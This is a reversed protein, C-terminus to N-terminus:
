RPISLETKDKNSLKTVNESKQDRLPSIKTKASILSVVVNDAVVRLYAVAAMAHLSSDCFVHYEIEKINGIIGENFWRSIKIEKILPIESFFKEWKKVESSPLEQDWKLNLRWIDQLGIKARVTFCALYGMPDWITSVLSILKRKTWKKILNGKLTFSDVNFLFKDSSQDWVVGFVASDKAWLNEPKESDTIFSDPIELNTQFKCLNMGAQAMIDRSELIFKKAMKEDDISVALDDVFFSNYMINVTDPYKERYKDLHKQIVSGLIFGSCKLGFLVVQM